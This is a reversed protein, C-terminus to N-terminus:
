RKEMIEKYADISVKHWTRKEKNWNAKELNKYWHYYDKQIERARERSVLVVQDQPYKNQIEKKYAKMVSLNSTQKSYVHCSFENFLKDIKVIAYITM